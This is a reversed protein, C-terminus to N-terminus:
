SAIDIDVLYVTQLSNSRDRESRRRERDVLLTQRYVEARRFSLRTTDSSCLMEERDGEGFRRRWSNYRPQVVLCGNSCRPM